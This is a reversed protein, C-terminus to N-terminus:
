CEKRKEEVFVMKLWLSEKEEVNSMQMFLISILMIKCIFHYTLEYSRNYFYDELMVSQEKDKETVGNKKVLGKTERSGCICFCPM